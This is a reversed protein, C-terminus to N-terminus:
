GYATHGTHVAGDYPHRRGYRNVIQNTVVTDPVRSTTLRINGYKSLRKRGDYPNKQWYPGAIAGTSLRVELEQLWVVVLDYTRRQDGTMGKGHQDLQKGGGGM